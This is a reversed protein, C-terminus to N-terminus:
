DCTLDLSTSSQLSPGGFLILSAPTEEESLDLKSAWVKLELRESISLEVWWSKGFAQRKPSRSKCGHCAVLPKNPLGSSCAESRTFGAEAGQPPRNFAHRRLCAPQIDM